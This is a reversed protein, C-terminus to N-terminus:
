SSDEMDQSAVHRVKHEDFEKLWQLRLWATGKAVVAPNINFSLRSIGLGEEDERFDALMLPPTSGLLRVFTQESEDNRLLRATETSSHTDDVDAMLTIYRAAVETYIKEATKATHHQEVRQLEINICGLLCATRFQRHVTFDLYLDTKLNVTGSM